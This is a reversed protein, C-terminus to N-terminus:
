ADRKISRGHRTESTKGDALACKGNVYVYRIGVPALYPEEYTAQDLITAPDFIVLDAFMGVAIRGRDRVALATAPISTMKAVASELSLLAEERAYRGLVRPNNGSGRPHPRAGQTRVGSDSAIGIWPEKVITRVDDEAMKHYVMGVRSGRAEIMLDVTMKAQLERSDGKLRAVAAQKITMGQLSQNNPASAIQAYALDGFGARDMEELLASEMARRFEADDALKKAFRSRGVQLPESPFLVDLSTSSAAYAYQDATVRQGSERAKRLRDLVEKARGHNKKGSVKLHSVHVPAGSEQGIRLLEEIAAIVSDAENRMHSVYIGGAKGAVKALSILEETEAYTGPVYILGTSLGFAGEQMGKAVLAEMGALEEATPARKASGLVRERVSGHGVLTGYNLALGVQDVLELHKGVELVSGGCNGTIITTVGMRIFNEAQPTNVVDADAHAHVDVFGPAIVLGSVDLSQECTRGALSGVHVIRDNTIALDAKIRPGGAGDCIEGGILHLSDKQGQGFGAPAFLALLAICLWLQRTM